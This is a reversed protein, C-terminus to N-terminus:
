PAALGVEQLFEDVHALFEAPCEEHAIHGCDPVELYRVGPIAEAVQRSNAPPVVRDGEGTIVVAPARIDGLNLGLGEAASAMVVEWLGRDWGEVRFPRQYGERMEASIREPHEWATELFSDARGAFLRALWPGLRRSQPSRLLPDVWSLVPERAELVAPSELVLARVREPYRLATAVAVSGGASHGVLVAQEVGLADMLAVALDPQTDTAYPNRTPDYEGARPRETLGFGPRDYAIVRGYRSLPEMMGQWSYTSAGFGHLLLFVTDGEGVEVYHVETGSVEVFRSDPYALDQAPLTDRTSPSPLLLPVITLTSCLSSVTACLIVVPLMVFLPWIRRM